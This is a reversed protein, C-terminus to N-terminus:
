FDTKVDTKLQVIIRSHEEQEKKYGELLVTLTKTAATLDAIAPIEANLIISVLKERSFRKQEVDSLEKFAELSIVEEAM